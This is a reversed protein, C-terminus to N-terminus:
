GGGCRKCPDLHGVQSVPVQRITRKIGPCDAKIHYRDGYLTIYYTGKEPHDFNLCSECPKYKGGNNNRQWTPIGNIATVSLKIHSCNRDLHYVTGSETVYVTKETNEEEDEEIAKYLAPLKLGSWGRLRARQIVDREFLGFFRIPIRVKYRAVVDIDDTDRLIVSDDFCIGDFGGAICSPNLNQAKLRKKVAYKIMGGDSLAHLFEPLDQKLEEELLSTDFNKIEDADFFDSFMYAARAMGLGTDTIAQQLKEQLIFIQIFYLFAVFFLLIVPLVLSAEVTLSASVKNKISKYGCKM